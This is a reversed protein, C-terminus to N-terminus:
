KGCCCVVDKVCKLCGCFFVCVCFGAILLILGVAILVGIGRSNHQNNHQNNYWYTYYGAYYDHSEECMHPQTTTNCIEDEECDDDTNCEKEPKCTETVEGCYDNAPCETPNADPNCTKRCIFKVIDCKEDEACECVPQQTEGAPNALVMVSMFLIPMIIVYKFNM